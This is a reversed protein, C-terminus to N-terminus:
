FRIQLGGGMYSATTATGVNPTTTKSNYFGRIDSGKAVNVIYVLTNVSTKSTSTGDTLRDSNGITAVIKGPGLDAMSFQLGLDTGTMKTATNDFSGSDIAFTMKGLTMKAGILLATTPDGTVGTAAAKPTTTLTNVFARITNTPQGEATFAMKSNSDDDHITVSAYGKMAEINYKLQLGDQETYGPCIVWATPALNNGMQGEFTYGCSRWNSVTGVSVAFDGTKYTARAQANNYNNRSEGAIETGTSDSKKTKSDSRLELQMFYSMPGSSGTFNLQSQMYTQFHSNYGTVGSNYQGWHTQVQGSVHPAEAVAMSSFCFVLSLALASKMIKKLM